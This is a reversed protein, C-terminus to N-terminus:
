TGNGRGVQPQNEQVISHHLRNIIIAIMIGIMRWTMLGTTTMLGGITMQANMKVSYNLITITMNLTIITMNLQQKWCCKMTIANRMGCQKANPKGSPSASNRGGPGIKLYRSNAVTM